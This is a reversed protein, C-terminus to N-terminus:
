GPLSAMAAASLRKVVQAVEATTSRPMTSIPKGSLLSTEKPSSSDAVPGASASGFAGYGTTESPSPPFAVKCNECGKPSAGPGSRATNSFPKTELKRSSAWTSTLESPTFKKRKGEVESVGAELLM